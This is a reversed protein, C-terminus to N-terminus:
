FNNNAISLDINHTQAVEFVQIMLPQLPLTVNSKIENSKQKHSSFLSVESAPTRNM